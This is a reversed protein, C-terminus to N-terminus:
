QCGGQKATLLRYRDPPVNFVGATTLVQPSYFHERYKHANGDSFKELFSLNEEAVATPTQSLFGFFQKFYTKKLWAAKKMLKEPLSTFDKKGLGCIFFTGFICCEENAKRNFPMQLLVGEDNCVLGVEDHFPYIVQIIGGVIEQMEKLTGNIEKEYPHKGAEVVLIKM